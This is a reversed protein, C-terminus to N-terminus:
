QLARFGYQFDSFLCHNKRYEVLSDNVFKEFIKYAIFYLSVPYYIKAVFREGVNKLM